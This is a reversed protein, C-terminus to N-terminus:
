SGGIGRNFWRTGTADEDPLTDRLAYTRLVRYTNNEIVTPDLTHNYYGRQWRATTTNAFTQSYLRRSSGGIRPGRHDEHEFPIPVDRVFQQTVTYEYLRRWVGSSGWFRNRDGAIHDLLPNILRSRVIRLDADLRWVRYQAGGESHGSSLWVTDGDTDGDIGAPKNRVDVVFPSIISRVVRFTRPDIVYIRGATDDSEFARQTTTMWITKADGGIDNPKEDWLGPRSQDSHQFLFELKKKRVIMGMDDPVISMIYYPWPLGADRDAAVVWLPGPSSTIRSGCLSNVADGTLADQIPATFTPTVVM